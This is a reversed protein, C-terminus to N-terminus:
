YISYIYIYIYQRARPYSAASVTKRLVQQTSVILAFFVRKLISHSYQTFTSKRGFDLFVLSHVVASLLVISFCLIQYKNMEPGGLVSVDVLILSPHSGFTAAQVLIPSWRSWLQVCVALRRLPLEGLRTWVIHISHSYQTFVM